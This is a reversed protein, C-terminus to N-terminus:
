KIINFSSDSATIYKCDNFLYTILIRENSNPIPKIHRCKWMNHLQSTNRILTRTIWTLRYLLWWTTFRHCGGKATHEVPVPRLRLLPRGPCLNSVWQVGRCSGAMPFFHIDCVTHWWTHRNLGIVLTYCHIIWPSLTCNNWYLWPCLPLCTAQHTIPAMPSCLLLAMCIRSKYHVLADKPLGIVFLSHPRRKLVDAWHLKFFYISHKIM